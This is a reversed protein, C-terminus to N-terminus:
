GRTGTGCAGRERGAEGWDPAGGVAGEGLSGGLDTSLSTTNLAGRRRSKCENPVCLLLLQWTVLGTVWDCPVPLGPWVPPTTGLGGLFGGSSLCNPPFAAPAQQNGAGHSVPPVCGRVKSTQTIHLPASWMYFLSAHHQVHSRPCTHIHRSHTLTGPHLHPDSCTLAQRWLPSTPGTHFAAHPPTVLGAHALMHTIRCAHATHPHSCALTYVRTYTASHMHPETRLHSCAGWPGPRSQSSAAAPLETM